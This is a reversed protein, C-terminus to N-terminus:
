FINNYIIYAVVVVCIVSAIKGKKSLKNWQEKITEM